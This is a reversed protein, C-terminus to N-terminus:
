NQLFFQLYEFINDYLGANTKNLNDMLITASLLYQKPIPQKRKRFLLYDIFRSVIYKHIGQATYFVHYGEKSKQIEFNINDELLEIFIKKNFKTKITDTLASDCNKLINLTKSKTVDLVSFNNIIRKLEIDFDTVSM